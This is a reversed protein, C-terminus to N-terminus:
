IALYHNPQSFSRATRMFTGPNTTPDFFPTPFVMTAIRKWNGNDPMLIASVLHQDLEVTLIADLEDTNGLAVFDLQISHAFPIHGRQLYQGPAGIAALSASRTRDDEAELQRALSQPAPVGYNV